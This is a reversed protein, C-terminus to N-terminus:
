NMAHKGGPCASLRLRPIFMFGFRAVALSTRIFSCFSEALFFESLSHTPQYQNVPHADARTPRATDARSVGARRGTVKRWTQEPRRHRVRFVTQPPHFSLQLQLALPAGRRIRIIFVGGAVLLIALFRRFTAGDACLSEALPLRGWWGIWRTRCLLLRYRCLLHVLLGLHHSPEPHGGAEASRPLIVLDPHIVPIQGVAAQRYDCGTVPQHGRLHSWDQRRPLVERRPVTAHRLCLSVNRRHRTGLACCSPQPLGLRLWLVSCCGVEKTFGVGGMWEVGRSAALEAVQSAKLKAMAAAQIFNLGGHDKMRAANLMLLEACEIETAVEAIQVQMGQNSAVPRGFQHREHAYKVAHDFVGQALGVMQAAIGIRGENLASIAIKYGQGFPGVMNAAPVRVDELLVECTSSARIGLKDEKKGVTLGPTDKPVLFAAATITVGDCACGM